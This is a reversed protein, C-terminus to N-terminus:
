GGPYGLMGFKSQNLRMSLKTNSSNTVPFSDTKYIYTKKVNYDAHIKLKFEYYYTGPELTEATELTTSTTYKGARIIGSRSWKQVVANTDNRNKYLTISAEIPYKDRSEYTVTVNQTTNDTQNISVSQIQVHDSPPIVSLYAAPVIWSLSAFLTAFLIALVYKEYEDPIAGSNVM